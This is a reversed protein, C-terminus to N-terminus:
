RAGALRKRGGKGCGGRRVAENGGRFRIVWIGLRMFAIKIYRCPSEAVERPRHWAEWGVGKGRKAGRAEQRGFGGCGPNTEPGPDSIAFSFRWIFL